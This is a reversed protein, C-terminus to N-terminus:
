QTPTQLDNFFAITDIGTDVLHDNVRDKFDMLDSKNEIFKNKM